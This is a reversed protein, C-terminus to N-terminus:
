SSFHESRKIAHVNYDTTFRGMSDLRGGQSQHIECLEGSGRRAYKRGAIRHTEGLAEPLHRKRIKGFAQERKAECVRSLAAQRWMKFAEAGFPYCEYSCHFNGDEEETESPLEGTDDQRGVPYNGLAQCSSLCGQKLM